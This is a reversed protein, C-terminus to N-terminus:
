AARRSGFSFDQDIESSINTVTKRNDPIKLEQTSDVDPTSRRLVDFLNANGSNFNNENIKPIDPEKFTEKKLNNNM